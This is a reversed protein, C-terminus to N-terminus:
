RPQNQLDLSSLLGLLTQNFRECAGNGQPHYPTTQAKTCGYMECLQQMLASEFAAGQDTLLREPSRFPQILSTWLAKVTTAAPQDKTPVALSYRSLLDTM